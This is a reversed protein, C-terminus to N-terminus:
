RKKKRELRYLKQDLLFFIDERISQYLKNSETTPQFEEGHYMVEDPNFSPAPSTQLGANQSHTPPFATFINLSPSSHDSFDHNSNNGTQSALSSVPTGAGSTHRIPHPPYPRPAPTQSFTMSRTPGPGNSQHPRVNMTAPPSKLNLFSFQNILLPVNTTRNNPRCGRWVSPVVVLRVAVNKFIAPLKHAVTSCM